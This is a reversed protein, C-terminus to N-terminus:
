GPPSSLQPRDTGWKTIVNPNRSTRNSSKVAEETLYSDLSHSWGIGMPYHNFIFSNYYHAFSLDPGRGKMSLDISNLGRYAGTGLDIGGFNAQPRRHALPDRLGDTSVYGAIGDEVFGWDSAHTVVANLYEHERICMFYHYVTDKTQHLRYLPTLGESPSAYVYAEIGVGASGNELQYGQSLKADRETSDTTYYHSNASSNYLRYLPTGGVYSKSSVYCEIREYTYGYSSVASDKENKSITYFHDRSAPSSVAKYLRYLPVLVPATSIATSQISFYGGTNSISGDLNSVAIQYDHGDSFTAIPVFPYNGDNPDNAALNMLFQGAKLIVVKVNGSVGASTWTINYNQGRVLTEGGNPYTVDISGSTISFYGGTNSISGDLNSVAIQYDHGDSFTAIPVFPYNGDNPDNAALNMLFQGAKLIVVKVNGSVGASTWTINYNQGRVLTEGGNPYTVDISGSTISFYGGTNSISGDLNSVAIQYDHGDSFTAIPVFPYNGDNPDNAALNMLFQGAKLIVVKVNGSIGSSTWTVTYNQGRVLTEGGNPYTVDITGSTITFYAGFNSVTGNLNAVAIQYNNGDPFTADPTFPCNGDNPDNAALQRFMQGAKYVEIKVNGSVGSSTWTVNYSQGRVLTAGSNPYTVNITAASTVTPIVLLGILMLLLQRIM